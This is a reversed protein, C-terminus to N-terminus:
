ASDRSQNKEVVLPVVNTFDKDLDFLDDNPQNDAVTATPDALWAFSFYISALVILCVLAFQPAVASIISCGAVSCVYAVLGYSNGLKAQLRHHFHDTDPAMPSRGQLTRTVILRLCDVVPIFFWVTATEISVRGQAHSLMTLLGLLFTVGYSGCDGLFLSGRLNFLLVIFSLLTLVLAVQSVVPDGVLMLCLSWVFFMTPVLGNQGDAMNVANVIGATTIALLLCYAWVSVPTPNFSGWNLTPSILRPEIFFALALFVLVFLIRTSPDISAQDDAFGILGVGTACIILAALTGGTVLGTMVAGATWVLLPVLIGVGGVLPTDKTHRKRRNDPRDM